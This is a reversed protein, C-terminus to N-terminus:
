AEEVEDAPILAASGVREIDKWALRIYIRAAEDHSKISHVFGQVGFSKVETVIVLAGVWGMRGHAEVVQVVDGVEVEIM